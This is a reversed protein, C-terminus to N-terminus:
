AAIDWAPAFDPNILRSNIDRLAYIRAMEADSLKFDFIDFNSAIHDPKSSRPIAVVGDQQYLWRLSVQVPSKGHAAAIDLLVPDKM